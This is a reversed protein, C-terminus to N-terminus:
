AKAADDQAVVQFPFFAIHVHGQAAVVAAAALGLVGIRHKGCLALPYEFVAIPAFGSLLELGQSSEVAQHIALWQSSDSSSLRHVGVDQAGCERGAASYSVILASMLAWVSSM